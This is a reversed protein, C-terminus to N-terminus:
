RLPRRWSEVKDETDFYVVYAKEHPEHSFFDSSWNYEWFRPFVTTKGDVTESGRGSDHGPSGLLARVEAEAMGVRLQTWGDLNVQLAKGGPSSFISEAATGRSIGTVIPSSGSAALAFFLLFAVANHGAHVLTTSWLAMSFSRPRWALWCWSLVLGSTLGVIFAGAGMPAHLLGFFLGSVVCLLVWSAVGMKKMCWLPLAQGLLTEIPLILFALLIVFIGRELIPATTHSGGVFAILPLALIKIGFMLMLM